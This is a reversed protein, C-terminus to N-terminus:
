TAAARVDFHDEPKFDAETINPVASMVSFTLLAFLTAIARMRFINTKTAEWGVLMNDDDKEYMFSPLDGILTSKAGGGSTKSDKIDNAIAAYRRFLITAFVAEPSREKYAQDRVFTLERQVVDRPSDGLNIIGEAIEANLKNLKDYVTETKSSVETMM